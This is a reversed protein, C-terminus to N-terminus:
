GELLVETIAAELAPVTRVREPRKHLDSLFDPLEPYQGTAKTVADPFKAPHACALAVIEGDLEPRMRIAAALGVATHPDIVMGCDRYVRQMVELTEADSVSHSRFTNRFNQWVDQSVDARGTKQFEAMIDAVAEANRELGEFLLREFNSSIQIDMSPSLSPQAVGSELRGTEFFRHMIDNRNTAVILQGVPAGMQKAVWAAYVNGFNGTPVAFHIPNSASAGLTQCATVYYVAQAAIRAWNISNVATLNLSQRFDKNSFIDKVLRQCDDFTGEVALNTINDDLVTTMQRRQVDSVRGKPHLMVLRINRKGRCAEIAASGTDGSTAGLVTISRNQATLVHDFLQGLFQLAVDKFALTSGHFLEQIWMNGVGSLGNLPVLPAVDANQFSAYAKTICDSLSQPSLRESEVMFPELVTKATTQYHPIGQGAAFLKADLQPWGTPVYLGGDPATGSLLVDIFSSTKGSTNRTSIYQMAAM